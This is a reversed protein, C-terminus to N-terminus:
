EPKGGMFAVWDMDENQNANSASKRQGPSLNGNMTGGVRNAMDSFYKGTEKIAKEPTMGKKSLLRTLVAKAMPAYAPEATFPLAANMQGILKQSSITTETNSQMESKLSNTSQQMMKNADIMAAKYIGIQMNKMQEAFGEMDGARVAEMMAAPDSGFNISAVHQNFAETASLQQSAPQQIQQGPAAAQEDIENDWLSSYDSLGADSNNESAPTGSQGGGGQQGADDAVMHLKYKLLQNRFKM